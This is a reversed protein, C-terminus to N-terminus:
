VEAASSVASNIDTLLPILEILEISSFDRVNEISTNIDLELRTFFRESIKNNAHVSMFQVSAVSYNILRNIEKLYEVDVSIPKNFQLYFDRWCGNDLPIFPIFKKLNSYGSDRGDADELVITGFAVRSLNLPTKRLWASIGKQFEIFEPLFTGVTPINFSGDIIPKLIWDIRDPMIRLELQGNQFNGVYNHEFSAPKSSSSEAPHGTFSEWWTNHGDMAVSSTFLTFRMMEASWGTIEHMDM